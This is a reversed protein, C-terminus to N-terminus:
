GFIGSAYRENRFLFHCVYHIAPHINYEKNEDYLKKCEYFEM